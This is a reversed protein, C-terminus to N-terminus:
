VNESDHGLKTFFIKKFRDDKLKDIVEALFGKIM